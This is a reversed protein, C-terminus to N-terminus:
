NLWKRFKVRLCRVAEELRSGKLISLGVEAPAPALTANVPMDLALV